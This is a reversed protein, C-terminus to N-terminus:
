HIVVQQTVAPPAQQMMMMVPAPQMNVTTNTQVNIVTPEKKQHRLERHMQCWTCWMCFCSALIDKCVSGKINYKNRIAARLGLTVPPAFLPVGCSVFAAPSCIDCLPLCYCEGFRNSVTCAMCPCCWFGYCCTKTDEFCDFLGGDWDETAKKAM